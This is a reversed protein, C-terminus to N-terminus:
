LRVGIVDGHLLRSAAHERLERTVRVRTASLLAQGGGGAVDMFHLAEHFETAEGDRDDVYAVIQGDDLEVADVVAGVLGQERGHYDKLWPVNAVRLRVRRTTM